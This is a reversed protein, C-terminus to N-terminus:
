KVEKLSMHYDVSFLLLFDSQEWSPYLEKMIHIAEDKSESKNITSEFDSIYKLVVDFLKADSSSGHGPYIITETNNYKEKFNKLESKWNAIHVSDVGQGLWLHVGNYCFDSTFLANLDKSYVTTLHEAETPKYSSKLELTGGGKLTFTNSNLINIQNEYDFGSPNENSQPKLNPEGDLWGVSEMWKSFGIIDKKIEITPVIIEADPFEKKLIDMGIYHDPHGHTILINTLPLKKTKIFQALKKADKTSRLVDMVMLSKGNSFLYSNVSAEKGKFVEVSLKYNKIDNEKKKKLHCSFITGSLITILFYKYLKM